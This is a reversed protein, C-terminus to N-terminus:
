VAVVSMMHNPPWIIKPPSSWTPSSVPNREYTMCIKFENMMIEFTNRSSVRENALMWRMQSTSSSGTSRTEGSAGM